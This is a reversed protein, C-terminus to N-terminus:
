AANLLRNALWIRFKDFDEDFEKRNEYNPRSGGNAETLLIDLQEFRSTINMVSTYALANYILDFDRPCSALSNRLGDITFVRFKEFERRLAPRKEPPTRNWRVAWLNTQVKLILFEAWLERKKLPKLFSILRSCVLQYSEYEQTSVNRRREKPGSFSRTLFSYACAVDGWDTQSPSTGQFKRCAEITRDSSYQLNGLQDYRKERALWSHVSCELEASRSWPLACKSHVDLALKYETEWLPEYLKPSDSKCPAPPNFVHRLTRESLSSKEGTSRILAANRPPTLLHTM